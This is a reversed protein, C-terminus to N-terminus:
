RWRKYLQYDIQESHYLVYLIIFLNPLVMTTAVLNAGTFQTHPVLTTGPLNFGLALWELALAPADTVVRVVVWSLVLWCGLTMVWFRWVGFNEDWFSRGEQRLVLTQRVAYALTAVGLLGYFLINLVETLGFFAWASRVIEATAYGKEPEGPAPPGQAFSALLNAAALLWAGVMVALLGLKPEEVEKYRDLRIAMISEHLFRGLVGTFPIILAFFFAMVLLSTPDTLDSPPTALGTWGLLFAGLVSGLYYYLGALSGWRAGAPVHEGIDNFSSVYGAYFGVVAFTLFQLYQWRVWPFLVTLLTIIGWGLLTASLLVWNRVLLNSPRWYPDIQDQLYTVQVWRHLPLKM